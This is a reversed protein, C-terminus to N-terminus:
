KVKWKEFRRKVLSILFGLVWYGNTWDQLLLDFQSKIKFEKVRKDLIVCNQYFLLNNELM